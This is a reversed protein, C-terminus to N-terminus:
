TVKARTRADRASRKEKDKRDESDSEEPGSSADAKQRKIHSMEIDSGESVSPEEEGSELVRSSKTLRSRRCQCHAAASQSSFNQECKAGDSSRKPAAKRKSVTAKRDLKKAKAGATVKAKAKDVLWAITDEPLYVTKLIQESLM